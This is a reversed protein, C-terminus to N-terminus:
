QSEEEGVLPPRGTLAALLSSRSMSANTDKRLMRFLAVQAAARNNTLNNAHRRHFLVVDDHSHVTLGLAVTRRFWDVDDHILLTSDFYGVVTFAARRYLGAQMGLFWRPATPDGTGNPALPAGDAFFCTRGLVIQVDPRQKLLRVQLPLRGAAWRDDADQFAILEGQALRLGHNRAAAPGQNAQYVYRIHVDATGSLNAVIRATNDTSGDDVVIIEDPPLTQDLVSQIAEALFREGNYVPVLVSIREGEAM